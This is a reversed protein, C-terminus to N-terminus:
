SGPKACRRLEVVRTAHSATTPSAVDAANRSVVDFLPVGYNGNGNGNGNAEGDNEEEEEPEAGAQQAVSSGSVLLDVFQHEHGHRVMYALIVTADPAALSRITTALADYTEEPKYYLTDSSIITDFGGPFQQLLADMHSAEGWQLPAVTVVSQVSVPNLAVNERLEQLVSSTEYGHVTSVTAVSDADSLVVHKAGLAAAALGVAGTGTGLDLVNKGSLCTNVHRELHRVLKPAAEWVRLGTLDGGSGDPRQGTGFLHTERAFTERVLVPSGNIVSVIHEGATALLRRRPAVGIPRQM